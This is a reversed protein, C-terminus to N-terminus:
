QETMKGSPCGCKGSQAPRWIPAVHATNREHLPGAREYATVPLCERQDGSAVQMGDIPIAIDRPCKTWRKAPVQSAGSWLECPWLGGVGGVCTVPSAQFPRCLGGGGGGCVGSGVQSTQRRKTAGLASETCSFSRTSSLWWIAIQEVLYELFIRYPHEVIDYAQHYVKHHQKNAAKKSRANVFRM